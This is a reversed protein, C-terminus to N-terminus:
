HGRSGKAIYHEIMERDDAEPQLELYTRLHTVGDGPQSKILLLGIARHAAAHSPDHELASRYAEVAEKRDRDKRRARLMEGRFFHVEADGEATELLHDLLVEIRDFRRMRVEDRLWESRWPLTATLFPERGTTAATTNIDLAMAAQRLNHIREAPAPHSALLVSRYEKDGAEEERVFYEWLRAAETPEYGERALLELGFLDAERENERSYAAMSTVAILRALDVMAQGGQVGSAAVALTFLTYLDAKASLDRFRKLSHRKVYHGVEHGLVAALQAENQCRLILGSWVNMMGNPYMSANFDPVDLVYVRIDPCFDGALRCVIDSVYTNLAEDHNRAGSTRLDDEFNEIQMWMGAETSTEDPRQGPRLDQISGAGGLPTACATGLALLALLSSLELRTM